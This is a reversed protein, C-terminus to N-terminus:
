YSSFADEIHSFSCGPAESKKLELTFRRTYKIKHRINQWKPAKTIVWLLNRVERAHDGRGIVYDGRFLLFGTILPAKKIYNPHLIAPFVGRVWRV